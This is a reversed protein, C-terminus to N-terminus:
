SEPDVLEFWFLVGDERNEVGCRGRHIDMVAKVISLGIGNGGYARTHAKDVKYFKDWIKDLDEEPIPTGTNFVNVRCSNETQEITIEIIKKGAVHNIANSVYNTVVEELRYEDGWVYVPEKQLFIITAEKQQALISAAGAVGKILATMDFRELELQEKGFELQNLSLLKKVMRNMKGAEDIIVECYFQTSEPDDAIGDQLGEAYGQILALPTKLEHSVNGLFENRMQEIQNKEDIDKQLELNASKLQAITQELRKSMENMYNGLEGIEDGMPGDYRAEFDLESMKKSLHTLRVIPKTVYGAVLYILLSGMVLAGLGVYIYFQNSVGASERISALPTRMLFMSGDDFRGWGELYYTNASSDYTKMIQYHESQELLEDKKRKGDYRDYAMQKENLQRVIWTKDVGDATVAGQGRIVVTSIASEEQIRNLLETLDNEEDDDEDSVNGIEVSVGPVPQIVVPTQETSDEEGLQDMSAILIELKSYADLMTRTKSRIYYQELFINNLLVSLAIAASLVLVFVATFKLRISIKKM